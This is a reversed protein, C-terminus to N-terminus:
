AWTDLADVAHRPSPLAAALSVDRVRAGSRRLAEGLQPLAAGVCPDAAESLSLQAEVEGQALGLRVVIEGAHSPCYLDVQSARHSVEGLPSEGGERIALYVDQPQENLQLPVAMWVTQPAPSADSTNVTITPAAGRRVTSILRLLGDSVAIEGVDDLVAGLARHPPSATEGTEPIRTLFSDLEDALAIPQARGEAQARLRDVLESLPRALPPLEPRQVSPAGFLDADAASPVAVSTPRRPADSASEGQPERAYAPTARGLLTLRPTAQNPEWDLRVRDGIQFTEQVRLRFSRQRTKFTVREGHIAVVEAVVSRGERRPALSRERAVRNPATRIPQSIPKLNM